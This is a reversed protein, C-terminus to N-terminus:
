LMIENTSVNITEEIPMPTHKGHMMQVNVMSATEHAACANSKSTQRRTRSMGPTRSLVSPTRESCISQMSMAVCDDMRSIARGSMNSM